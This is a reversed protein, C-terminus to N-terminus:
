NWSLFMFLFLELTCRQMKMEFNLNSVAKISMLAWDPTLKWNFGCLCMEFVFSSISVFSMHLCLEQCTPVASINWRNGVRWATLTGSHVRLILASLDWSHPACSPICYEWGGEGGTDLAVSALTDRVILLHHDTKMVWTSIVYPEDKVLLVPHCATKKWWFWLTNIIWAALPATKHWKNYLTHQKSIINMMM